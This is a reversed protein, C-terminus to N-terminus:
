ILRTLKINGQNQRLNYRFQFKGYSNQAFHTHQQDVNNTCFNSDDIKLEFKGWSQKSNLNMTCALSKNEFSM